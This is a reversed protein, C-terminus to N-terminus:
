KTPSSETHAAMRLLPSVSKQSQCLRSNSDTSSRESHTNHLSGHQDVESTRRADPVPNVYFFADKSSELGVLM